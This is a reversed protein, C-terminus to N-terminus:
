RLLGEAYRRVAEKVSGSGPQSLGQVVRRRFEEPGKHEKAGPIAVNGDGARAPGDEKDGSTPPPESDDGKLQQHAAELARQAERQRELGKDADGQQLAQAAERADRGAEGLDELAKDPLSGKEGAKDKLQQAREALKQEESGGQQLQERARDAARKRMQALQDEAWKQEAELKRRASEVRKGAEGMPDELWGDRQLMKKAEDLSGQAGRGSQVADDPRADELSRAMQEGLERAAAGKSTWSDSGEGVPPLDKVAERVAEAHKKAEDRLEKMDEDSAADKLAQEMKAIEGAHEQALQELDQEAEAQARDVEDGSDGGQEGAGGQAGGSEGGARGVSGKSGFSPDPERLRTALDRAALEAHTADKGDRARKVRSLDADVIEGLDRGLMGLRLLQKSGGALVVQAADMRAEGRKRTDDHSADGLQNAGQALDDAVDALGKAVERSDKAGAGRIIADVVLVLRETATVVKLHSPAGPAKTEATLADRVKGVQVGVLAKLRSPVKVGAYSESLARDVREAEADRHAKEEALHAAREAATTGSTASLRWALEDVLADRLARLGDLRLAEPEGVDPPVITIAESAGWKPGTLPDNDKAEVTVQVPAHSARLFADRLKLNVGGKDTTTEGDLHTLVRREERVGSRLVLHVERLGHDDQASYKIPIDETQEVLRLQEPAGELEVVPATDPISVVTLADPHEIAVEGFRASVRLHTSADVTWRAIQAGAGDDVFPVEKTGDTLRLSRGAHVPIARVSITTGYPVMLPLLAVEHTEAQHLYEPPRAVVEVEDLWRMTVPALGKRAALVDAGELVSWANALAWGGAGIAVVLAVTGVRAATKKAHEVIRATPLGALAKDVYIRSLEPSTGDARPQGTPDLLSLARLAKAAAFRDIGGALDGIVSPARSLRRREHVSWGIALALAVIMAAGAELRAVPTGKRALLLGAVVVAGVLAAALQRRSGGTAEKWAAVLKALPEPVHPTM